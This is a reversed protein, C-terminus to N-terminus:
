GQNRRRNQGATYLLQARAAQEPGVHHSCCAPPMADADPRGACTCFVPSCNGGPKCWCPYRDAVDTDAILWRPM